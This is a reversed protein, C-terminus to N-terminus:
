SNFLLLRRGVPNATLGKGLEFTLCCRFQALGYGVADATSGRESELSTAAYSRCCTAWLTLQPNWPRGLWIEFSPRSRRRVVRRRPKPLQALNSRMSWCSTPKASVNLSPRNSPSYSRGDGDMETPYMTTFGHSRFRQSSGRWRSAYLQTAM